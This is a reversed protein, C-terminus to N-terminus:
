PLEVFGAFAPATVTVPAGVSTLAGTTADVRFVTLNNSGQNGVVMWNGSPDLSFHRPTTGGTLTHAVFTLLGTLQDVRWTAISDHGRNSGFVFRGNPHVAVEATTNTMTFTSPLTPLTQLPSLTGAASVDLTQLTNGLENILYARPLTPHLALHRPGAGADTTMAAPSLPTLTGANFAFQAVEDDLKCPVYAFRNTADTILQHAQGLSSITQSPASLGGAIAPLVAVTGGNYNSAFVYQGTRDVSVHAPGNGGSSVRNLLTLGADASNLTFAAIQNSGENTAYLRGRPVDFALFSSGSGGATTGLATLAGTTADFSFARIQGNSGGTFVFLRPPAGADPTGADPTGADPTGADPTGADPMGADVEGADVEGADPVSADTTTGADSGADPTGSDLPSGSDMTQMTGSDEEGVGSDKVSPAGCAALLVACLVCPFRMHLAITSQSRRDIGVRPLENTIPQAKVPLGDDM